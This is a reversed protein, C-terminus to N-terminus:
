GEDDGDLEVGELPDEECESVMDDYIPTGSDSM